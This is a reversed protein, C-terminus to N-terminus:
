YLGGYSEHLEGVDESDKIDLMGDDCDDVVPGLISGLWISSFNSCFLPWGHDEVKEASVTSSTM